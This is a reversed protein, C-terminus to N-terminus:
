LTNLINGKLCPVQDQKCGELAMKLTVFCTSQLSCHTGLVMLTLLMETKRRTLCQKRVTFIKMHKLPSLERMSCGKCDLYGKSRRTHFQHFYVIASCTNDATKLHINSHQKPGAGARSSSSQATSPEKIEPLRQFKFTVTNEQTKMHYPSFLSNPKPHLLVTLWKSGM